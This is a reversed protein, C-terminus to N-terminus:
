SGDRRLRDEGPPGPDFWEADLIIEEVVEVDIVDDLDEVPGATAWGTTTGTTPGATSDSPPAPLRTFYQKATRGVAGALAANGAAGVGAGIGYPVLAALSWPGRGTALRGVTSGARAVRGAGAAGAGVAPLRAMLRAGGRAGLRAALGTVGVAAGESLGLIAAIWAAKEQRTARDHGYLIGLGMVLEGLRSVSWAADSGASAAAVAVGAVPSAAAGGTVAGGLAMDRVCRRILLDALTDPDASPFEARLRAVDEAAVAHRQDVLRGLVEPLV